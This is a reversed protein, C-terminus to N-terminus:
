RAHFAPRDTPAGEPAVERGISGPLSSVGPDVVVEHGADVQQRRSMSGAVDVAACASTDPVLRLAAVAVTIWSALDAYAGGRRSGTEAQPLKTSGPRRAGLM